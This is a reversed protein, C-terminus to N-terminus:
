KEGEALKSSMVPFLILYGNEHESILNLEFLRQAFGAKATHKVYQGATGENEFIKSRILSEKWASRTVYPAGNVDEEGSEQWAKMISERAEFEAKSTKKKPEDAQIIVASRVQEGDEDIWGPVDQLALEVFIPEALEADKMKRQIISIAAGKSSPPQISIEGELAGKWASSGRARHQSDESVGTHHVLLVSCKFEKQILSCADLMSKVDQSSNEDGALFRHLTDIVIIAPLTPLQRIESLVLQIGQPTNFDCGSKSLWFPPDIEQPIQHREFWAAVRARLGNHGEGALYVIPAKSSRHGMWKSTSQGSDDVSACAMNLCWDLVVFTKGSGSPGHVMIMAEAQIWHKILWKIPKPVKSFERASVLWSERKPNLLATLDHGALRYDNADQGEEPPMVVLAGFKAAAQDAYNRGTGSKDNDAVIVIEVSPYSQRLSEVVPLINSASFTAVTCTGTTEYITAATAFGEAVFIPKAPDNAGFWLMAGKVRGGKHFRKEGEASITQLSWIEGEPSYMPVILNGVGDARAVHPQIQKRVLYPHGNGAPILAEWVKQCDDAALENRIRKESEAKQRASELASRYALEEAMSLQRGIDGKWNVQTGGARFSGFAGGPVMGNDFAVYWLADGKAKKDDYRHLDGDMVIVDPPTQGANIMATRLQVEPPDHKPIHDGFIETLNGL